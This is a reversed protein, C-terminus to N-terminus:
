PWTKRKSPCKKPSMKALHNHIDIVGYDVYTTGNWVYLTPCSGGGGPNLDHFYAKLAHSYNMVVTIPNDYETEGDLIWYDFACDDWPIATVTVSEGYEYTYTGYYPDTRGWLTSSISLNYHNAFRAEITCDLDFSIGMPNWRQPIQEGDLFWDFGYGPDPIALIEAYGPAEFQYTGPAPNTTGGESAVITLTCTKVFVAVLVHNSNMTVTIPNDFYYYFGDLHWKSFEFGESENPIAVVTVNSGEVYDHSLQGPDTTGGGPPDVGISLTYVKRYWAEINIDGYIEITRPNDPPGLEWHEFTYKNSERLIAYQVEITHSGESIILSSVRSQCQNGDIWIDVGTTESGDILFTNLDLYHDGTYMNLTVSTDITYEDGEDVCSQYTAEAIITLFHTQNNADNFAWEITSALTADFPKKFEEYLCASTVYADLDMFDASQSEFDPESLDGALVFANKGTILITDCIIGSIPGTVLTELFLGALASITTTYLPGYPDPEPNTLIVNKGLVYTPLIDIKACSDYISKVLRMKLRKLQYSPSYYLKICLGNSIDNIDISTGKSGAKNEVGITTTQQPDKTVSMYQFFILHHANEPAGVGWKAIIVQFTQPNGAADPVNNWSIALADYGGVVVEGYTISDVQDPRLDRWFPAIIANPKEPNPITSPTSNDSIDDFYLFGNKDLWFDEYEVGEFLIPNINPACQALVLHSVPNDVTIYTPNSVNYWNFVDPNWVSYEIGERTDASVCVRMDLKDYRDPSKSEDYEFIEVGIGVAGTGDNFANGITDYFERDDSPRPKSWDASSARVPFINSFSLLLFVTLVVGILKRKNIYLARL